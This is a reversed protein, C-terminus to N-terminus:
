SPTRVCCTVAFPLRRREPAGDIFGHTFDAGEWSM